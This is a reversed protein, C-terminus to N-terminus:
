IVDKIYEAATKMAYINNIESVDCVYHEYITDCQYSVKRDLLVTLDGARVTDRSGVNYSGSANKKILISILISLDTNTIIQYESDRNVYLPICNLADYLFGKKMNKGIIIPCRLIINDAYHKVIEESLLKHLGYSNNKHADYSSIYIYKKFKFDFMTKYVSKVNLSFDNVPHANAQWKCSNGNANILVDYKTGCRKEYNDRTIEDARLEKCIAKGVFGNAGIVGIKM